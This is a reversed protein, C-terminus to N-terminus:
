YDRAYPIDELIYFLGFEKEAFYPTHVIVDFYCVMKLLDYFKFTPCRIFHSLDNKFLFDFYDFYILLCPLKQDELIVHYIMKGHHFYKM